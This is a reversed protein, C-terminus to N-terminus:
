EAVKGSRWEAVKVEGGHGFAGCERGEPVPNPRELRPQPRVHLDRTLVIAPPAPM